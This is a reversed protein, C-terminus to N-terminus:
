SSPENGTLAFDLRGYKNSFKFEGKVSGPVVREPKDWGPHLLRSIEM